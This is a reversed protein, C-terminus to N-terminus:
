FKMNIRQQLVIDDMNKVVLCIVTSIFHKLWLVFQIVAVTQRLVAQIMCDCSRVCVSEGNNGKDKSIPEM